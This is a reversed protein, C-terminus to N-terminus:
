LQAITYSVVGTYTGAPYVSTNAYSFTFTDGFGLYPGAYQFLLQSATGDFQGAPVDGDQNTWSFDSLPMTDGAGNTLGGSSDMTVVYNSAGNRFRRGIFRIEIDPTGVVPTGTGAQGAPVSFDVVQLGGRNGVQIFVFPVPRRITFQLAQVPVSVAILCLLLSLRRPRM